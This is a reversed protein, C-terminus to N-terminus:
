ATLKLKTTSYPNLKYQVTNGRSCQGLIYSYWTTNQNPYAALHVNEAATGHKDLEVDPSYIVSSLDYIHICVTLFPYNSYCLM